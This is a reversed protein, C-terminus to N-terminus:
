WRGLTSGAGEGGGAIPEFLPDDLETERAEQRDPGALRGLCCRRTLPGLLQECGLTVSVQGQKREVLQAPDPVAGAVQGAV